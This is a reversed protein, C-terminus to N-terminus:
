RVGLVLLCIGGAALCYVAFPILTRTEFWRTLWRVAAYAAVFSAVSGALVPGRIGNGLPGFLDPLKLAGAALIVPTALLFSFRAADEHSLGRLLGTVM